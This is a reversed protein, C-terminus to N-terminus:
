DHNIYTRLDTDLCFILGMAYSSIIERDISTPTEMIEKNTKDLESQIEEITRM